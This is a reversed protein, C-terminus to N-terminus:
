ASTVFIRNLYPVSQRSRGRLPKSRCRFIRTAGAFLVTPSGCLSIRTLAACRSNLAAWQGVQLPPSAMGTLRSSRVRSPSKRLLSFRGLPKAFGDRVREPQFCAIAYSESPLTATANGNLRTHFRVLDCLM